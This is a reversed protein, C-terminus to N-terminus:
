ISKALKNFYNCGHKMLFYIGLNAVRFEDLFLYKSLFRIMNHYSLNNHFKLDKGFFAVWLLFFYGM